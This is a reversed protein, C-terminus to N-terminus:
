RAVEFLLLQRLDQFRGMGGLDDRHRRARSRASVWELDYLPTASSDRFIDPYLSTGSLGHPEDATLAARVKRGQWLAVAELLTAVARPHAPNALLKAKLITEGPGTMALIRASTREPAIAMWISQM